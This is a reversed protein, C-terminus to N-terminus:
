MIAFAARAIVKAAFFAASKAAAQQDCLIEISEFLATPMCGAATKNKQM